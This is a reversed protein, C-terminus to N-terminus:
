TVIEIPKLGANEALTYPIVELADSFAKFCYSKFGQTKNALETLKVAIETEPASGGPVMAKRKVISRVVCLADHLSRETEDLVLQNSGRCLISVTKFQKTCWYNRSIKIRRIFNSRWM